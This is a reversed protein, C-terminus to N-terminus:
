LNRGAVLCSAIGFGAVATSGLSTCSLTDIPYEVEVFVNAPEPRTWPPTTNDPVGKVFDQPHRTEYDDHCVMLGQWDKILQDAPFQFGCRDCIAKWAPWRGKHAM